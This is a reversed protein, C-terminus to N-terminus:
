RAWGCASHAPEVTALRATKPVCGAGLLPAWGGRVGKRPGRPNQLVGKGMSGPKGMKGSLSSAADQEM